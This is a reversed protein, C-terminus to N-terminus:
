SLGDLNTVVKVIDHRARSVKRSAEAVDYDAYLTALEALGSM